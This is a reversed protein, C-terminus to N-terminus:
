TRATAVIGMRLAAEVRLAEFAAMLRPDAELAAPTEDGALGLAGAAVFIVPNAVDVMSADLTGTGALAIRDLAAGTPLVRGAWRGGPGDGVGPRAPSALALGSRASHGIGARSRASM